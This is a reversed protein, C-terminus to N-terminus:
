KDHALAIGVIEEAINRGADKIAFKQAGVIMDAKDKESNYIRNIEFILGKDSLNNEEIVICAGSRAYNYANKIQHNGYSKSMPIIISPIEWHALEFLSSGARAIALDTVGAMM